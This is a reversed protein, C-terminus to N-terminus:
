RSIIIGGQVIKNWKLVKIALDVDNDKALPEEPDVESTPAGLDAISKVSYEYYHNRLVRNRVVPDTEDADQVPFKHYNRGGTYKSIEGTSDVGLAQLQDANLTAVAADSEFWLLKRAPGYGVSWFDGAAAYNTSAALQYVGENETLEMVEGAAPAYITEIQVYTTSGYFQVNTFSNGDSLASTNEVAYFSNYEAPTTGSAPTNLAVPKFATYRSYNDWEDAEHLLDLNHAHSVVTTGVTYPNTQGQPNGVIHLAKPLSGLRYRSAKFTGGLATNTSTVTESVQKGEFGTFAIKAALRGLTMGVTQPAEAVGGYPAGVTEPWLTGLMFGPTSKTLNEAAEVEGNANATADTASIANAARTMFERMGGNVGLRTKEAEIDTNDIPLTNNAFVFFHLQGPTVTIADIKDTEYIGTDTGVETLDQHGIYELDGDLDFVVVDLGKAADLTMEAGTAPRAGEDAARTMGGASATSVKLTLVTKEGSKGDPDGGTGKDCGAVLLAALAALAYTLRLKMVSYM